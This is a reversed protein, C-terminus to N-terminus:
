KRRVATTQNPFQLAAHTPCDKLLRKSSNDKDRTHQPAAVDPVLGPTSCHEGLTQHHQKPVLTSKNSQCLSGPQCPTVQHHLHPCGTVAALTCRTLVVLTSRTIKHSTDLKHSGQCMASLQYCTTLHPATVLSDRLHSPLLAMCAEQLHVATANNQIQCSNVAHAISYFHRPQNLADQTVVHTFCLRHVNASCETNESFLVALLL